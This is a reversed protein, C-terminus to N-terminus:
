LTISGRTRTSIILQFARLISSTCTRRRRQFINYGSIISGMVLPLRSKGCCRRSVLISSTVVVFAAIHLGRIIATPMILTAPTFFIRLSNLICVIFLTLRTHVNLTAIKRFQFSSFQARVIKLTKTCAIAIDMWLLSASSQFTSFSLHQQVAIDIASQISQLRLSLRNVRISSFIEHLSTTNASGSSSLLVTHRQSLYFLVHSHIYAICCISGNVNILSADM